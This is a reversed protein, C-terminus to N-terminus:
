HITSNCRVAIRPTTSIVRHSRPERANGKEAGGRKQQEELLPPNQVLHLYRRRAQSEIAIRTEEAKIWATKFARVKNALNELELRAQRRRPDIRDLQQSWDSKDSIPDIGDDVNEIQRLTFKKQHLYFDIGKQLERTRESREIEGGLMSGEIGLRTIEHRQDLFRRNDAADWTKYVHDWYESIREEYDDSM